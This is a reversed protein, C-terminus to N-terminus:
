TGVRKLTSTGPICGRPESTRVSSSGGTPRTHHSQRCFCRGSKESRELYCEVMERVETEADGTREPITVDGSQESDVGDAPIVGDGRCRPIMGDWRAGRQFPKRNPWLGGVVIPIRPEQVPTDASGAPSRLCGGHTYLPPAPAVAPTSPSSRDPLRESTCGSKRSRARRRGVFLGCGIASMESM